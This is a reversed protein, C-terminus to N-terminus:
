LAYDAFYMNFNYYSSPYTQEMQYIIIKFSLIPNIVMEIM